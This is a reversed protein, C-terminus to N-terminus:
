GKKRSLRATFRATEAQIHQNLAAERGAATLRMIHSPKRGSQREITILGRRELENATRMWSGGIGLNLGELNRIHRLLAGMSSTIM